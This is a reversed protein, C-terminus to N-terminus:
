TLLWYQGPCVAPCMPLPYQEDSCSPQHTCSAHTCPCCPMHGQGRGVGKAFSVSLDYATSHQKIVCVLQGHNGLDGLRLSSRAMVVAESFSM